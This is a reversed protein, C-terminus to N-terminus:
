DDKKLKRIPKRLVGQSMSKAKEIFGKVIEDNKLKSKKLNEAFTQQDIKVNDALCRCPRAKLLLPLWNLTAFNVAEAINFGCNFGQHYAGGFLFM